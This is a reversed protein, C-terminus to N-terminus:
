FNKIKCTCEQFFLNFLGCFSYEMGATLGSLIMKITYNEVICILGMLAVMLSVSIILANRRGFTDSIRLIIFITIVQFFFNYSKGREREGMRECEIGLTKPWSKYEYELKGKSPDQNRLKCAEM